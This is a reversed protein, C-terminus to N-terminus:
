FPVSASLSIAYEIGKTYSSRTVDEDIFESRYVEEIRPNTLNKAQLRLTLYEGLKQSLTLNLTDYEKAYVNPVFNGSSQGAGAVLTDGQVTYFLGIQTGSERWDYTMYLNYLHEPAQTMDRSKMPAQINPLEFGAAEDEPLTVESDIFTANAGVAFGELDSWLHGLGQRVELEWGKLEGEPYNVPTTFTFSTLRQVYEIPQEIDKAFWSISFLGDAFPEYDLRVDYNKLASMELDPNGIFIPGGLYEQQLIPTLEKFTQRAVTESYSGRLTIHHLPEIVLGISPLEDDQSFHVDADGPNLEVPATAGPPFWTADEEAANVIGLKTKEFRVGGIVSVFGTVPLDLMAYWASIEQDGEYDVDFLSETIAHDEYPFEESWSDEWDGEFSSGSDGFNSFTDQNFKRDLQDDFLGSKLFGEDGTWQEFPLRLNVSYQGSEEEIDKWIRQLNGLTFNAAPKYPYWTPPTTFAPLWPPAGPNFSPPLWLAGFQRKDPQAMEASSDAVIWDLEPSGFTIVDEIGFEGFPLKHRGDLQLASTTRETYELTETRLYPAASLQHPKNGEGQPDDPDYNPFFYEKGRTDEALTAVDEASRTYLYTLGLAHDEIEVGFRGLGGWQVSERGQTVDFLATKFDGDEPTGQFTEPVLGEGPTDVWYSDDTGNDHFASDREYFFSVFGGLKLGSEFEKKGGAAGSWKFDTPAEGRSTGVAGNWNSGLRDLQIDRDGDDRGWTSVGGGSYTLFDRRGTVQSNYSFETKFQLVTEDPIGKLRVDVAGGSADGQQDPTFTKSVRVSDIVAAPFQDLEVARKDEDATPLRVGNMQSSVYRDPLGRIVASKDDQLSAGVVLRLAAAADSAGARSMLDASISDMLSPSEFRLKLLAAEGGPALQLIDQVVFEEMETLEGPLSVELDTLQGAAVVVDAKVQEVYGAKSFVLTYKGPAVRPFVFTGQDTTSVKGGGVIEVQAAALPADFDRDYVIGRISGM